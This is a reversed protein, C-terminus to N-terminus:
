SITLRRYSRFEIRIVVLRAKLSQFATKGFAAQMAVSRSRRVCWASMESISPWLKRIRSLSNSDAARPLFDSPLVLYSFDAHGIVIPEVNFGHEFKIQTQRFRRGPHASM